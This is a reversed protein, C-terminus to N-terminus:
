IQLKCNIIYSDRTKININHLLIRLISANLIKTFHFYKISEIYFIIHKYHM